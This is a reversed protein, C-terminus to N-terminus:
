VIALCSCQLGCCGAASSFRCFSSIPNQTDSVCEHAENCAYLFDARCGPRVELWNVGTAAVAASLLRQRNAGSLHTAPTRSSNHRSSASGAQASVTLTLM